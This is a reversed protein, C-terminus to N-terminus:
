FEAGRMAAKIFELRMKDISREYDEAGESDDSEATDPKQVPVSEALSKRYACVIAIADKVNAPIQNSDMVTELDAISGDAWINYYAANPDDGDQVDRREGAVQASNQQKLSGDANWNDPIDSMLGLAKARDMIHKRIADHDANGRGVAHIANQLDEADKIPYSGDPMAAGSNAMDKRDAANYKDARSERAATIADRATLTTSEYAPFTVASVEHLRVERITRCTGTASNAARGEDDAWDDKIVEFGFSMGKVVGAKTLAMLDQSYSTNVPSAEARLGDSEQTLKLNGASTRALPMDSNHNMLMVVDREQLTKTFAGPAIQERFGGHNLDGITTETNFPTVLGRLVSGDSEAGGGATRYEITM